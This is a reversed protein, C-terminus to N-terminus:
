YIDIKLDKLRGRKSIRNSRSALVGKGPKLGLHLECETVSDFWRQQNTQTNTLCVQRLKNGGRYYVPHDYKPEKKIVYESQRTEVCNIAIQFELEKRLVDYFDYTAYLVRWGTVDIGAKRNEIIRERLCNGTMGVKGAGDRAHPLYYVYYLKIPWTM